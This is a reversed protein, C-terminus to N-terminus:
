KNDTWYYEGGEEVFGTVGEPALIATCRVRFGAANAPIERDLELHGLNGWEECHLRLPTRKDPELWSENGLMYNIGPPPAPEIPILM